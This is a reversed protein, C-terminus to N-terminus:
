WRIASEAGGAAVLARELDAAPMPPYFFFGQFLDCGRAALFDRQAGTEVEEAVVRLGLDHALDIVRAVIVQCRRETPLRKVFTGPIKIGDMPLHSLWELSSHGTGFDDLWLEIGMAKLREIQTAVRDFAGLRSTETIELGLRRPELGCSRLRRQVRRVLDIRPFERASLNVDVRVGRLGDDAWAAAEGCAQELIWNELRVIVPSRETSWIQNELDDDGEPPTRWRLLAEVSVVRGDTAAVIPQYHLLFQQQELGDKLRCIADRKRAAGPTPSRREM